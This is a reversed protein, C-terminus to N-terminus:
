VEFSVKEGGQFIPMELVFALPIETEVSQQVLNKTNGRQDNSTEIEGKTSVKVSRLSAILARGKELDKFYMRKRNLFLALDGTRWNENTGIKFEKLDENAFLTGTIVDGLPSNPDARFHMKMNSRDVEVVAKSKDFHLPNIAIRSKYFDYPAGILGSATYARPEVIKPAEGQRVILEGVGPNVSVNVDKM